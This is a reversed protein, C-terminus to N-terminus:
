SEAEETNGVDSGDPDDNNLGIADRSRQSDRGLELLHKHAQQAVQHWKEDQWIPDDVPYRDSFIDKMIDRVFLEGHHTILFSKPFMYHKPGLPHEDLKCDEYIVILNIGHEACEEIKSIDKEIKDGHWFWSGPELGLQLEPIYVDIERGFNTRHRNDIEYDLFLLKAGFFFVQEAFSTGRAQCRRCSNGRRTRDSIAAKWEHGNKCKWHVVKAAGPAEKWPDVGENKEWDWEELLEPYEAALSEEALIKHHSCYPCGCGEVRHGIRMTYKHKPNAPCQWAAEVVSRPAFDKPTKGDFLNNNIEYDWEAAISPFLVALNNTKSAAIGACAPCGHGDKTRHNVRTKWEHGCTSCKWWYSRGSGSHIEEPLKDNKDSWERTIDPYATALDNIGRKFSPDRRPSCVPCKSIRSTTRNRIPEKWEHGQSCRWHTVKNSYPLLRDLGEAVNKEWDWEKLLDPFETALTHEGPMARRHSCYPCGGGAARENITADWHHGNKCVWHATKHSRPLLLDPSLGAEENREWDWESLLRPFETALSYEGPTAVAHSCHPCGQSRMTRKDISTVWKHGSRCKWHVKKSSYPAVKDPELGLQANEEWDWESAIEPFLAALSNEGPITFKGSCYPCGNGRTRSSVVAEWHHGKHCIWHAKKNSEPLLHDPHLDLEANKKWDWEKMLDPHETALSYEGPTAVAHSCHPCLIFSPASRRRTRLYPSRQFSHGKKCKWWFQQKTGPLITDPTVDPPNKDYDWELAMEPYEAELSYEGPTAVRHSCHPCQSNSSKARAAISCVWEHGHSCKWHAKKQSTPSIKSPDVEQNKDYDWEDLLEPNTISLPVCKRAM